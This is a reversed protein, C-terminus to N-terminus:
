DLLKACLIDILIACRSAMENKLLSCSPEQIRLNANLWILPTNFQKVERLIGVGPKYACQLWSAAKSNRLPSAPDRSHARSHVQLWFGVSRDHPPVVNHSMENGINPVKVLAPYLPHLM